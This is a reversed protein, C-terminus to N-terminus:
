NQIADTRTEQDFWKLEEGSSTMWSLSPKAETTQLAEMRPIGYPMLKALADLYAKPSRERLEALACQVDGQFEGGVIDLVLDRTERM